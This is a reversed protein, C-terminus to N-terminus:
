FLSLQPNNKEKEAKAHCGACLGEYLYYVKTKCMQCEKQELKVDDVTAKFMDGTKVKSDKAKQIAKAERAKREAEEKANEEDEKKWVEDDFYDQCIRFCVEDPIDGNKGDLIDFACDELYEMCRDLKNEIFKQCHEELYKKIQSQMTDPSASAMEKYAKLQEKTASM